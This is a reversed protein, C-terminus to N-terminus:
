AANFRVSTSWGPPARGLAGPRRRDVGSGSAGSMGVRIRPVRFLFFPAPARGASRGARPASGGARGASPGSARRSRCSSRPRRPRRCRRRCRGCSPTALRGQREAVPDEGVVRAQGDVGEVAGGADVRGAVGPRVAVVLRVVALEEVGEGVDGVVAAARREDAGQGQGVREARDAEFGGAGAAAPDGALGAARVPEAVVRQEQDGFIVLREALQARQDLALEAVPRPGEGPEPGPEVPQMAVPSQSHDRSPEASSGVASRTTTTPDLLFM